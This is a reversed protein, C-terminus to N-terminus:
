EIIIELGNRIISVDIKNTRVNHYEGDIQIDTGINSPIEISLKQILTHQAKTFKEIKNLLVYKYLQVFKM